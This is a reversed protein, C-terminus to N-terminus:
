RQLVQLLEEEPANVFLLDANGIIDGDNVALCQFDGIKFRYSDDM